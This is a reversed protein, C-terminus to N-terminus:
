SHVGICPNKDMKSQAIRRVYEDYFLDANVSMLVTGQKHVAKWHDLWDAM